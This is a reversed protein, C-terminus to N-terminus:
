LEIQKGDFGIKFCEDEYDKVLKPHPRVRHSLHVAETSKVKLRKSLEKAKSIIGHTVSNEKFELEIREQTFFDSLVERIQTENETYADILMLDAERILEEADEDLELRSDPLFVVKKGEAEIMIGACPIGHKADFFVINFGCAEFPSMLEKPEIELCQGLHQNEKKITSAADPITYVKKAEKLRFENLGSCHDYHLHTILIVDIEQPNIGHNLMQARLDPGADVLLKRGKSEVLATFRKREFGNKRSWSCNKCNCGPKPTGATCGSGLITVKM